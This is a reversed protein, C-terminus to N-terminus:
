SFPNPFFTLHFFHCKTVASTPASLLPTPNGPSRPCFSPFLCSECRRHPWHGRNSSHVSYKEKISFDVTKVCMGKRPVYSCASCPLGVYTRAFRRKRGGRIAIQRREVRVTSRVAMQIARAMKEPFLEFRAPPAGLYHLHTRGRGGGVRRLPRAARSECQPLFSSTGNCM